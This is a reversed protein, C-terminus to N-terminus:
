KKGREIYSGATERGWKDWCFVDDIKMIKTARCRGLVFELIDTIATFKIKGRLFNDVAVEDAANMAALHSYGKNAAALILSFGPFQKEDMPEFSLSFKSDFMNVGRTVLRHPYYLSFAIPMCMDPPYMCSFVSRDACEIMAHINSERHIVVKIDNYPVKFFEHTEVVEFAKNVLTASDVTIRKGMKWTPHRLVDQATVKALDAKKYNFLAGGSATVWIRSFDPTCAFLQFLSNIESDVPIIETKYKAAHAFIFRGATVVSEKNALAIRKAFPINEWLPRLCSIGTIAMVSIDCNIRAFDLLGAQGKFFKVNKPIKCEIARAREENVVCVYRPKFEKIQLCLADIDCNVCLGDIAFQKTNVRLVALANLGISGTSGFIFVKKKPM